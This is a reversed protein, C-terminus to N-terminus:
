SSTEPCRSQATGVMRSASTSTQSAAVSTAGSQRAGDRWAISWRQGRSCGQGTPCGVLYGLRHHRSNVGALGAETQSKVPAAQSQLRCPEGIPLCFRRRFFGLTDAPTFCAATARDQPPMGHRDCVGTERSRVLSRAGDAAPGNANLCGADAPRNEPHGGGTAPAVDLM